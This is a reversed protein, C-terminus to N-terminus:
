KLMIYLDGDRNVIHLLDYAVDDAKSAHELVCILGKMGCPCGMEIRRGPNAWRPM